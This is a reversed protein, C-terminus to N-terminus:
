ESQLYEIKKSADVQDYKHSLDYYKRAAKFFERKLDAIQSVCEQYCISAFDIRGDQHVHDTQLFARVEFKVRLESDEPLSIVQRVARNTYTEAYGHEEYRLYFGAIKLWIRVKEQEEVFRSILGSHIEIPKDANISRSLFLLLL